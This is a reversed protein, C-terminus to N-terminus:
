AITRKKQLMHLDTWGYAVTEISEDGIDLPQARLYHGGLREYFHRSSNAAIVWVLMENLGASLLREAFAAVLLRGLGRGQFSPDIYIAYLEGSFNLDGTREKGGSIYGVISGSAGEAVYTYRMGEIGRLLELWRTEREEYCLSQLFSDAVIGRYTTRWTDVMVRAIQKADAPRAERIKM